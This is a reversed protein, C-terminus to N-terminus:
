LTLELRPCEKIRWVALVSRMLEIGNEVAVTPVSWTVLPSTTKISGVSSADGIADRRLAVPAAVEHTAVAVALPEFCFRAVKSQNLTADSAPANHGATSGTPSSIIIRFTRPVCSGGKCPGTVAAIKFTTATPSCIFFKASSLAAKPGTAAISKKMARLYRYQRLGSVLVNTIGVSAIKFLAAETNNVESVELQGGADAAGSQEFHTM